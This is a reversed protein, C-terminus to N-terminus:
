GFDNTDIDMAASIRQRELANLSFWISGNLEHARAHLAEVSNIRDRPTTSPLLAVTALDELPMLMLQRHTLGYPPRAALITM